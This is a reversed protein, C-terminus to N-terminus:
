SWGVGGSVGVWWRGEVPQRVSSVALGRHAPLLTNEARVGVGFPFTPPPDKTDWWGDAVGRARCLARCVDYDHM